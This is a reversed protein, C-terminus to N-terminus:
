GLFSARVELGGTMPGLTTCCGGYLSLGWSFTCGSTPCLMAPYVPRWRGVIHFVKVFKFASSPQLSKQRKLQHGDLQAVQDDVLARFGQATLGPFRAVGAGGALVLQCFAADATCGCLFAPAAAADWHSPWVVVRPLLSRLRACLMSVPQELLHVVHQM